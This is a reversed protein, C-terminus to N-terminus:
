QHNMTSYKQNLVEKEKEKLHTAKETHHREPKTGKSRVVLLVSFFIKMKM